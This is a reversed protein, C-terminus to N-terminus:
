IAKKAQYRKAPGYSLIHDFKFARIQKRYYCYALLYHDTLKIVRIIRQTIRNKGDLYFIMIKAQGEMAEILYREMDNGGLRLNSVFM